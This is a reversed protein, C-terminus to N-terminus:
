RFLEFDARFLQYLSSGLRPLITTVDSKSKWHIVSAGDEGGGSGGGDWGM